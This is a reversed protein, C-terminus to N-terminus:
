LDAIKNKMEQMTPNTYRLTTNINSHGAQNAVEHIDLKDLAITCYYHRLSHPTIDKSYQNFLRNIVTRDLKNGRNSVFLYVQDEQIQRMYKVLSNYVKNTIIVERYKNGKSQNITIIRNDLDIDKVELNLCESIRLGAYALITVIAYDRINKDKNRDKDTGQLVRQRFAEVQDRNITTLSAINGQIKILDRKSVEISDQVGADILFDNFSILSSVKNNITQAKLGTGKLYDIYDNVNSKYLQTFDKSYNKKYWKMYQKINGVYGKVTNISKKDLELYEKFKDLM